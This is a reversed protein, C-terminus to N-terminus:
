GEPDKRRERCSTPDLRYRGTELSWDLTGRVVADLAHVQPRVGAGRGAEDAAVLLAQRRDLYADLRESLWQDTWELARELSWSNRRAAVMVLNHYEGAAHEKPLSLLDNVAFTVNGGERLLAAHDAFGALSGVSYPSAALEAFDALIPWGSTTRRREVYEDLDPTRGAARDLVEHHMSTAFEALHGAFRTHWSGHCTLSPWRAAEWPYHLLPDAPRVPHAGATRLETTREAFGASYGPDDGGGGPDLHGDVLFLWLVAGAAAELIPPEAQPFMRSILDEYDAGEWGALAGEGSGTRAVWSAVHTRLGEVPPTAHPAPIERMVRTISRPLSVTSM